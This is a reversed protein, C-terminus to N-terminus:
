GSMPVVAAPNFFQARHIQEVKEDAELARGPMELDAGM